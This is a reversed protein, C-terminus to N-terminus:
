ATALCPTEMVPLLSGPYGGGCGVEQRCEGGLTRRAMGGIGVYLPAAITFSTLGHLFEDHEEDQYYDAQRDGLM